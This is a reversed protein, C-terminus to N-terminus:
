EPGGTGVLVEANYKGFLRKRIEENFEDRHRSVYDQLVRERVDEFPRQESGKVAELRVVWYGVPEYRLLEPKYTAHRVPDSVEGPELDRVEQVLERSSRRVLNQPTMGELRFSRAGAMGTAEAVRGSKMLNSCEEARIKTEMQPIGEEFEFEVVFLDFEVPTRYHGEREEYFARLDEDPVTEAWDALYRSRAAEAAMRRRRNRLEERVEPREDLGLRVAAEALIEDKGSQRAQIVPTASDLGMQAALDSILDNEAERLSRAKLEEEIRPVVESLPAVGGEQRDEMLILHFGWGTEVVPSLEGPQLKWAAAEYDPNLTGRRQWPLLGGDAANESDSYQKAMEAFDAGAAIEKRIEELRKRQKEREGPTNGSRLFIHRTLIADKREFQQQNERYYAEVDEPRIVTMEASARALMADALIRLRTRQWSNRFAPNRFAGSRSADRILLDEVLLRETMRRQWAALDEAGAPRRQPVPLSLIYEELSAGTIEGGAFRAVVQSPGPMVSSGPTHEQAFLPLASSLFLFLM